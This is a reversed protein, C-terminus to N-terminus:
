LSEDTIKPQKTERFERKRLLKMLFKEDTIEPYLSGDLERQDEGLERLTQARVPATYRQFEDVLKDRESSDNQEEWTGKFREM